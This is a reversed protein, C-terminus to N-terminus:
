SQTGIAGNGMKLTQEGHYVHLPTGTNGNTKLVIFKTPNLTFKGLQNGQFSSKDKVERFKQGFEYDTFKQAEYGAFYLEGEEQIAEELGNAM